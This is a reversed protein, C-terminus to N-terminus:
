SMQYWQCSDFSSHPLNCWSSWQHLDSLALPGFSPCELCFVSFVTFVNASLSVSCKRNCLYSKFWLWLSGRIGLFWVKDLVKDHTISDFEKKSTWIFKIKLFLLYVRFVLHPCMKMRKILWKNGFTNYVSCWCVGFITCRRQIVHSRVYHSLGRRRWM